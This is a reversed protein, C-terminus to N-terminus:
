GEEGVERGANVIADIERKNLRHRYGISKQAEILRSAVVFPVEVPAGMRSLQNRQAFSALGARFWERARRKLAEAQGRTANKRPLGNKAMWALDSASAPEKTWAPPIGHDLEDDDVGFRRFADFTARRATVEAAAAAKAIAEKSAEAEKQLESKAQDIAEKLTKKRNTHAIRSARDRVEKPEKGALADAASCLSHKGAHGSIDVLLFDPKSSAAIAALRAEVTELQGIWGEPRGGRWAMQQYLSESQTMRAIVICRANPVDLGEVYIACNVIFQLEGSGFRRLVEKRVNDPTNQDVSVACGPRFQNLTDAVAHASAVGPTYVLTPRDGAEEYTLHAIAAANKVIQKELDGINLDGATTKVKSLDVSDIYRAIPVPRCLYGEDQGIDADREFAVSQFVAGQGVGDARGPTATIGFVKASQFWDFIARYGPAVAHHAEDVIILSFKDRAHSKLREGRLTQVSGVVIRSADAYFQAKELTAHTGCMQEIRERAQSLLFDRHALWLVRGPWEHIVGGGIQTKGAGCHAVGLTARIGRAFEALTGSVAGRQYLRLGLPDGAPAVVEAVSAVAPRDLLRLQEM